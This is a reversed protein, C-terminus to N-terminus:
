QGENGKIVRDLNPHARLVEKLWKAHFEPDIQEISESLEGFGRGSVSSEAPHSAYHAQWQDFLEYLRLRNTTRDFTLASRADWLLADLMLPPPKPEEQRDPVSQIADMAKAIADRQEPPANGWLTTLQTLLENRKAKPDPADKVQGVLANLFNSGDRTDALATGLDGVVRGSGRVVRPSLMAAEEGQLQSDIDPYQRRL